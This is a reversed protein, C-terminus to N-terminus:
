PQGVCGLFEARTLPTRIDARGVEFRQGGTSSVGEFRHVALRGPGCGGPQPAFLRVAPAAYNPPKKWPTRAGRDLSYLHSRNVEACADQAGDAFCFIDYVLVTGPVLDATVSYAYGMTDSVHSRVAM